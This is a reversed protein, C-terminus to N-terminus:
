AAYPMWAPVPRLDPRARHRVSRLAGLVSRREGREFHRPRGRRTATNSEILLRGLDGFGGTTAYREVTEEDALMINGDQISVRQSRFLLEAARAQLPNQCDELMHRALAHVIQDMLLPPVPFDVGRVLRRYAAALHGSEILLDRFALFTQYNFRADPDAMRAIEAEPVDRRPQDKLRAHTDREAQCSEEIPALEPRDLHARLLDDTVPLRGDADPPTLIYGSTIWFDPRAAMIGIVGLESRGSPGRPGLNARGDGNRDGLRGDRDPPGANGPGAPRRRPVGDTRRPGAARDLFAPALPALGDRQWRDLWNLFYRCFATLLAPAATDGAGEQYLSTRDARRGPRLDAPDGMVDITLRALMWDPVAAPDETETMLALGGALAGNVFIRDPWGMHVAIAPPITAGLSDNTALMLPYIVQTAHSLPTEPGLMLIADLRDPRESYCVAGPDIRGRRARYLAEAAVDADPAFAYAKFLPPLDIESDPV